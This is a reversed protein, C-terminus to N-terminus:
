KMLWEMVAKQTHLRHFLGFIKTQHEFIRDFTIRSFSVREVPFLKLEEESIGSVSGQSSGRRSFASPNSGM